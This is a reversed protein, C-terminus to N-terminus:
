TKPSNMFLTKKFSHKNERERKRYSWAGEIYLRHVTTSDPCEKPGASPSAPKYFCDTVESCSPFDGGILRWVFAASGPRLQSILSEHLWPVVCNIFVPTTEIVAGSANPGVSSSCCSGESTPVFTKKLHCINIWSTGSSFGSFRCLKFSYYIVAPGCTWVRESM